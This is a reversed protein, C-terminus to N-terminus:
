QADYVLGSADGGAPSDNVAAPLRVDRSARDARQIWTEVGADYLGNLQTMSKILGLFHENYIDGHDRCIEPSVRVIWFPTDNYADPVAELVVEGDVLEARHSVLFDIHGHARNALRGQSPIGDGLSDRFARPLNDYIQGAPYAVRTVWDAESTISVIVPGRAPEIRGDAHRLEVTADIRKLYDIFQFAALGDLAPNQLIVLDSPAFVGEPGATLLLTSLTPALTQALIMGGMSHGSLLVKSDPRTKAAETIRVLTERMQYSAVREAAAKRNWFTASSWVPFRNTVGRWGLYVGVVHDPASGGEARLEHSLEVMGARFRALDNKESRPNANNQWGHTYTVVMIGRESAANREEILTTAAALQEPLWLMGFDDFEIIALDVGVADDTPEGIRLLYEDPTENYLTNAVCGSLTAAAAIATIM